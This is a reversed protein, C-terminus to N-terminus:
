GCLGNVIRPLANSTLGSTVQQLERSSLPIIRGSVNKLKLYTIVGSRRACLINAGWESTKVSQNPVVTNRAERYTWTVKVSYGSRNGAASVCYKDGM